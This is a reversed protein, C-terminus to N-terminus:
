NEDILGLTHKTWSVESVKDEPSVLQVSDDDHPMQRRQYTARSKSTDIDPSLASPSLSDPVSVGMIDEVPQTEVHDAAAVAAVAAGATSPMKIKFHWSTVVEHKSNRYARSRNPVRRLNIRNM